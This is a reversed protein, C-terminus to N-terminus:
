KATCDFSRPKEDTERRGAGNDRVSRPPYTRLDFIYAATVGGLLIMAGVNCDIDVFPAIAIATAGAVELAYILQIKWSTKATMHDLICLARGIILLACSISFINELSAM